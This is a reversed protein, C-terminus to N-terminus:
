DIILGKDIEALDLIEWIQNENLERLDWRPQESIGVEELLRKRILRRNFAANYLLRVTSIRASARYLTQLEADDFVSHKRCYEKFDAESLFDKRKKSEIAVCLSTAVSRYYAPGKQDSTRYIVVLDGPAIRTLALKGVYIKEITNSHSVDKVIDVPDTILKSDPLLKTHHEPYVALLWYRRGAVSFRPYNKRLDALDATLDKTYVNEVGSPTTKSGHLVFGYRELLAILTTHVAFVTVYIGVCDESIARDFAKKIVREGAKTGAANIKLTGVKLWKGAGLQPTVDAIPGNETKLYLMGEISGSKTDELLFATEAAKSKFWVDFGEYADKLSDFFPDNIDVKCLEKESLTREAM